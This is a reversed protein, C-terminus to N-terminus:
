LLNEKRLISKYLDVLEDYHIYYETPNGYVSNQVHELYWGAKKIDEIGGKFKYRWLYKFANMLCFEIVAEHGFLVTMVEICELSCEDAYHPPNNIMDKEM